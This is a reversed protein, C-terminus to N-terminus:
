WNVCLIDDMKMNILDKIPIIMLPTVFSHIEISGNKILFM